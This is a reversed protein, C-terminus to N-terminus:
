FIMVDTGPALDVIATTLALLAPREPLSSRKLFYFFFTTLFVCSSMQQFSENCYRQVERDDQISPDFM